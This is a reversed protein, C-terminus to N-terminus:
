HPVLALERRPQQSIERTKEFEVNVGAGVEEFHLVYPQLQRKRQSRLLKSSTVVISMDSASWRKRLELALAAAFGCLSGGLLPIMLAFRYGSAELLMSAGAAVLGAFCAFYFLRKEIQEERM